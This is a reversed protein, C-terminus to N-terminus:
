AACERREAHLRAITERQREVTKTLAALEALAVQALARYTNRDAETEARLIREDRLTGITQVLLRATEEANM